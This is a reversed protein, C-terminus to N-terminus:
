DFANIIGLFVSLGIIWPVTIADTLVLIALTTAQLMCLTQSLLLIHHKNMRDSIVGAFPGLLFSPIQSAFGLVGLLLVSDTLRYVLWSLAVQQMWTGILSVGQGMFFLRYNKYKLARFMAKFKSEPATNTVDPM